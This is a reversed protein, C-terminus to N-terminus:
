NEHHDTQDQSQTNQAIQLIVDILADVDQPDNCAQGLREFLPFKERSEFYDDYHEVVNKWLKESTYGCAGVPILLSQQSKAIEFEKLMGDAERVSIDELKNGFLFIAIGAQSIIDSRYDGWVADLGDARAGNYGNSGGGGPFPYVRFHDTLNSKKELYIEFLAGEIIHNGVGTGFGSVIRFDNRLLTKTLDRIFDRGSDGFKGYEYASGSIFVTKRRDSIM